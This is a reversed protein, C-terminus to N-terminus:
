RRRPPGRSHAAEDLLRQPLAVCETRLLEPPLVARELRARHAVPPPQDAPPHGGPDPANWAGAVALMVNLTSPVACTVLAVLSM